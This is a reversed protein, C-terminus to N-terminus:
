PINGEKIDRMLIRLPLIEQLTRTFSIIPREAVYVIDNPRLETAAAVMIRSVSRTDLHYAKSPNRGRLLYVESRKSNINELVGGRVFLVDALTEWVLLCPSTLHLGSTTLCCFRKTSSVSLPNASSNPECMSMGIHKINGSVSVLFVSLSSMLMM